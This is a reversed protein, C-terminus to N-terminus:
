SANCNVFTSIEKGCKQKALTTKGNCSLFTLDLHSLASRLTHEAIAAVGYTATICLCPVLIAESLVRSLLKRNPPHQGIHTGEEKWEEGWQSIDPIIYHYNANCYGKLYGSAFYQFLGSVGDALEM